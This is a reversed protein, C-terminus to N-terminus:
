KFRPVQLNLLYLIVINKQFCIMRLNKELHVLLIWPEVICGNFVEFHVEWFVFEDVNNSRKCFFVQSDKTKFIRQSQIIKLYTVRNLFDCKLVKKM